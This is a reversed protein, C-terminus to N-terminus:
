WRLMRGRVDMCPSNAALLFSGVPSFPPFLPFNALRETHEAVEQEIRGRVKVLLPIRLTFDVLRSCQGRLDRTVEEM